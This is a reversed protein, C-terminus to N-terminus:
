NGFIFISVSWPPLSASFSGSWVGHVTQVPGASWNGFYSQDYQARGYTWQTVTSGSTLGAITIPVVHAAEQDRNILMVAFRSGHTASYGMLWPANQVDPITELMHEGETVFGSSSLIQFARATPTLDANQLGILMEGTGKLQGTYVLASDGCGDYWNYATSGAYDYNYTSCVDTMGQALWTAYQVGARMYEALQMAAFMPAAAGLTQRSWMNGSVEGNWETIWIADSPKGVDLLQTQLALLSGRVQTGSSIRDPYLTAGDTIPDLLPYSHYIVADYKAGLLVPYEYNISWNYNSAGTAPVGIKISPDVTKMADYFAPEYTPYTSVANGGQLYPNSHLDILGGGYAYQENGIEWYKIGYHKAINAYQVLNAGNITPDGGGDCTPPNSGYNVTYGLGLGLSQAVLPIYTDINNNTAINQASVTGGAQTCSIPGHQWDAGDAAIGAFGGAFRISTMGAAGLGTTLSSLLTSTSIDQNNDAYGLVDKHITGLQQTTVYIGGTPPKIFSPSYDSSVQTLTWSQNSVLGKALTMQKGTSCCGPFLQYYFITDDLSGSYTATQQVAGDVYLSITGANWTVVVRHWIGVSYGCQQADTVVSGMNVLEGIFCLGTTNAIKISVRSSGVVASFSEAAVPYQTADSNIWVALTGANKNLVMGQNELKFQADSVQSATEGDAVPGALGGYVSSNTGFGSALSWLGFNDHGINGSAECLPWFAYVGPESEYFIDYVSNCTNAVPVSFTSGNSRPTVSFVVSTVPSLGASSAILQYNQGVTGVTLDSFITQGNVANMTLTGGLGVGSAAPSLSLTIPNTASSVLNGNADEVLVTIAPTLTAGAAGTSPQVSFALQAPIGSTMTFTASNVGSSIGNSVAIARVTASSALTIPGTYSPSAQSPMTGDTTYYVVASPPGDITVLQDGIFSGGSPSIAPPSIPSTLSLTWDSPVMSLAPEWPPTATSVSFIQSVNRTPNSAIQLSADLVNNPTLGTLSRTYTFLEGCASGDVTRGSSNICAALVNGLTNLKTVPVSWGTPLTPGPVDGTEVNVFDTVTAFASALAAQDTTSSGIATGSSMFPALSWVSAVTTREDINISTSADISSCPGIATMMGAASNNMGSPLGPNGGSSIVYILDAGSACTFEGPRVSFAGTSDTQVPTPLIAIAGSGTGNKGVAYLQISAGTVPQQGGHVSGHISFNKPSPTSMGAVAGCASLALVCISTLM